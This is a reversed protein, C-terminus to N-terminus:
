WSEGDTYIELNKEAEIIEDATTNYDKIFNHVVALSKVLGAVLKSLYESTERM